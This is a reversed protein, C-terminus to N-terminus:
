QEPLQMVLAELVVRETGQNTLPLLCQTTDAVRLINRDLVDRALNRHGRGNRITWRGVVVGM